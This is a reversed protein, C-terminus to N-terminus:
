EETKKVTTTRKKAKSPQKDAPTTPTAKKAASKKGAPAAAKPTASEKKSKVEFYLTSLPPVTLSIVKTFDGCQGKKTRYTAEEHPQTGGFEEWNSNMIVHLSTVGEPVGLIYDAWEVPAFNCLVATQKGGEDTRLYSIVNRTNDDANLWRYGDRSDE